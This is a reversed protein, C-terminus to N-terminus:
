GIKRCKNAKGGSGRLSEGNLDSSPSDEFFRGSKDKENSLSIQTKQLKREFKKEHGGNQFEKRHLHNWERLYGALVEDFFL